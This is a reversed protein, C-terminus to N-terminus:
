PSPAPKTAWLYAPAMRWVGRGEEVLPRLHAAVREREASSLAEETAEAFTPIKPNGSSNLFVKWPQPDAARLEIRLELEVPFFGAAEAFRVLDREDFDFM